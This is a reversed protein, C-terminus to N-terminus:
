KVELWYPALRLFGGQMWAHFPMRGALQRLRTEMVDEQGRAVLLDFLNRRAPLMVIQVRETAPIGAKKKDLDVATDLGGLHDVLGRPQAQSGLWVRGQAV